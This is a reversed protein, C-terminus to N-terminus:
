ASDAVQEENSMTQHGHKKSKKSKHSKKSSKHHAPVDPTLEAATHHVPVDVPQHYLPVVSYHSAQPTQFVPHPTYQPQLTVIPEEHHPQMEHHRLESHHPEYSIPGRYLPETHPNPDKTFRMHLNHSLDAEQEHHLTVPDEFETTHAWTHHTPM